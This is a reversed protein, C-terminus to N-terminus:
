EGVSFWLVPVYGSGSNWFSESGFTKNDLFIKDQLEKFIARFGPDSVRIQAKSGTKKGTSKCIFSKEFVPAM